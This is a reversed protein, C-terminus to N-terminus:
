VERLQRATNALEDLYDEVKKGVAKAFHKFADLSASEGNEIRRVQRESLGPIDSQRLGYRKRLLAVAAGIKEDHALKLRESRAKREPDVACWITELDIHIDGNPWHIYSGDDAIEFIRKDAESLGSVGSLSKFPVELHELACTVVFLKDRSVGANAILEKQAGMQWAALVRRPVDLGAHVLLDRLTKVNAQVLIQPLWHIDTDERVFLARLHHRQNAVRVFDSIESLQTAPWLVFINRSEELADMHPHRLVKINPSHPVIGMSDRDQALITMQALGM